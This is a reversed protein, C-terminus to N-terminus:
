SFIRLTEGSFLKRYKHAHIIRKFHRVKYQYEKELKEALKKNEPSLWELFERRKSIVRGKSDNSINLPNMHRIVELIAKEAYEEVMKRSRYGGSTREDIITNFAVYYARAIDKDSQNLMIANKLNRYAYHREGLVGGSSKEYGKGM